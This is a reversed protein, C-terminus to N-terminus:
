MPPDHVASRRTLSFWLLLGGGAALFLSELTSGESFALSVAALALMASGVVVGLVVRALLGVSAITMPSVPKGSFFGPANGSRVRAVSHGRYLGTDGGRFRRRRRVDHHDVRHRVDCGFTCLPRCAPRPHYLKAHFEQNQRCLFGALAFDDSKCSFDEIV